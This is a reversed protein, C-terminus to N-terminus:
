RQVTCSLEATVLEAAKGAARVYVVGIKGDALQALRAETAFQDPGTVRFSRGTPQLASDVPVV